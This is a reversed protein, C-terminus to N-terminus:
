IISLMSRSSRVVRWYLTTNIMTTYCISRGLKITEEDSNIHWSSSCEERPCQMTILWPGTQIGFPAIPEKFVIIMNMEPSGADIVIGLVSLSAILPVSCSDDKSLVHVHNVPFVCRRSLSRFEPKSEWQFMMAWHESSLAWGRFDCKKLKLGTEAVWHSHPRALSSLREMSCKGLRYFPPIVTDVEFLQYYIYMCLQMCMVKPFFIPLLFRLLFLMPIYVYM